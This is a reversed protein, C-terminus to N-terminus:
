KYDRIKEAEQQSLGWGVYEMPDADIPLLYEPLPEPINSCNWFLWSDLMSQPTAQQYTIGLGKMVEMPHGSTVDNASYMCYSIHKM